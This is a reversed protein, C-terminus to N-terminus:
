FISKISFKEMDYISKINSRLALWAGKAGGSDEKYFESLMNYFAGSAQNIENHRIAIHTYGDKETWLKEAEEAKRKAEEWQGVTACVYAQDALWLLKNTFSKLYVLNIAAITMLSLLLALALIEKKM